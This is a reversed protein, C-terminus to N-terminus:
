KYHTHFRIKISVRAISMIVYQFKISTANVAPDHLRVVIDGVIHIPSVNQSCVLWPLLLTQQTNFVAQVNRAGHPRASYLALLSGFSPKVDTQTVERIHRNCGLDRVGINM